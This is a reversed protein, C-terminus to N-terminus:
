VQPFVILWTSLVIFIRNQKTALSFLLQVCGEELHFRVFLLCTKPFINKKTLKKLLYRKQMCFLYKSPAGVTILLRYVFTLLFIELNM